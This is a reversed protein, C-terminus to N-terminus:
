ATEPMPGGGPMPRPIGGGGPIGGPAGPPGGGPICPGGPVARRWKTLGLRARSRASCRLSSPVRFAAAVRYAPAVLVPCAAALHPPATCAACHVLAAPTCGTASQRYIIRLFPGAAPSPGRSAAAAPCAVPCAPKNTNTKPNIRPSSTQRAICCPGGPICCCCPGGPM